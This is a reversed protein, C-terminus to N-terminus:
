WGEFNQEKKVAPFKAARDQSRTLWNSIFRPIGKITKRNKPNELLWVRMKALETKIDVGPYATQWDALHADTVTYEGTGPLPFNILPEGDVEADVPEGEPEQPPAAQPEEACTTINVTRENGKREKGKGNEAIANADEQKPQAIATGDEQKPKDEQEGKWRQDAGKRGAEQKAKRKEERESLRRDISRSRIRGNSVYFLGFDTAISQIIEAPAQFEYAMTAFDSNVAGGEEYVKEVMMWYIGYGQAGHKALLRLINPDTRAHYDHSFYFSDKM